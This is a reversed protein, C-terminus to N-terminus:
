KLRLVTNFRNIYVRDYTTEFPLMVFDELDQFTNGPVSIFLWYEVIGSNESLTKYYILRGEKKRIISLVIEPDVSLIYGSKIPSVDILEMGPLQHVSVSEVYKCDFIGAAMKKCYDMFAEQSLIGAETEHQRQKIEIETLVRENFKNNNVDKEEVYAQDTFSIAIRIGKIGKQKLIEAYKRCARNVREEMQQYLGKDEMDPFCMVVEAGVPKGQYNFRLDPMDASIVNEVGISQLIPKAYFLELEQKITM